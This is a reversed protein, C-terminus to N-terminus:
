PIDITIWRRGWQEAVYATTGSGCTPDLVLDGPDSTMLVCNRVVSTVTQVVFRKPDTFANPRTDLWLTTRPKFPFVDRYSKWWLSSGQIRWYGARQVRQMGELSTSWGRSAGPSFKRQEFEFEFRSNESGTQSTPNELKLIRGPPIPDLGSKQRVSLDIIEGSLTGICVYREDVKDIPPRSEYIDRFKVVERNKAFWVLYDVSSGLLASTQGSTKNFAIEGCFNRMGFVEEMLARVLHVNEDGIQIFISGSDHLM